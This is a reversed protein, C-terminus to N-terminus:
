GAYPHSLYFQAQMTRSYQFGNPSPQWIYPILPTVASGADIVQNPAPHSLNNSPIDVNLSAIQVNKWGYPPAANLFHVYRGAPLAPPNIVFEFDANDSQVAQDVQIM